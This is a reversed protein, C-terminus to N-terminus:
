KVKVDLLEQARVKFKTLHEVSSVGEKLMFLMGSSSKRMETLKRRERVQVKGKRLRKEEQGKREKEKRQTKLQDLPHTSKLLQNLRFLRHLFENSIVFYGAVYTQPVTFFTFPM